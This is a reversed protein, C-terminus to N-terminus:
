AKLLGLRESSVTFSGTKVAAVVAKMSDLANM